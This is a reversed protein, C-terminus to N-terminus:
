RALAGSERYGFLGNKKIIEAIKPPVLKEWSDDGAQIKSLVDGSRIPLLKADHKEIGQIL